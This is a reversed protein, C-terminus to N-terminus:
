LFHHQQYHHELGYALLELNHKFHLTISTSASTTTIIVGGLTVNIVIHRAPCSLYCPCARILEAKCKQWKFVFLLIVAQEDMVRVTQM